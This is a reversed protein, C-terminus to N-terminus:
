FELKQKSQSAQNTKMMAELFSHIATLLQTPLQSSDSQSNFSNNLILLKSNESPLSEESFPDYLDALLVDENVNDMNDCPKEVVNDMSM